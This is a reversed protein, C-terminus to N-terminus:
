SGFMNTIRKTVNGLLGPKEAPPAQV